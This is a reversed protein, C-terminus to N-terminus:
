IGSQWLRNQNGATTTRIGQHYRGGEACQIPQGSYLTRRLFVMKHGDSRLPEIAFSAVLRTKVLLRHFGTSSNGRTEFSITCGPIITPEFLSPLCEVSKKAVLIQLNGLVIGGGTTASVTQVGLPHIFVLSCFRSQREQHRQDFHAQESFDIM